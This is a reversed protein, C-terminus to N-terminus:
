CSSWFQCGCRVLLLARLMRERVVLSLLDGVGFDEVGLVINDIVSRLEKETRFGQSGVACGQEVCTLMGGGLLVERPGACIAFRGV